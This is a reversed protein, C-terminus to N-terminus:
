DSAVGGGGTEPTQTSHGTCQYMPHKQFCIGCVHLFFCTNKKTCRNSADNYGYCIAKGDPTSSACRAGGGGKGKGKKTKGKTKSGKGKGGGKQKAQGPQQYKKPGKGPMTPMEAHYRDVSVAGAAAQLAMPTTFNREKVVVDLWAQRLCTPFKGQGEAMLRYAKKRIALEYSVVLTWGPAAVTMGSSDKAVMEWVHEGLLYECYRHSLEPTIGQIHPRNTHSMAVFMLGTFMISIRRRLQEPNEPDSIEGSSKKMKVNGTPDWVPTM